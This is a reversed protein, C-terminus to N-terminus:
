QGGDRNIRRRHQASNNGIRGLAVAVQTQVIPSSDRCCDCLADAAAAATKGLQGLARATRWRVKESPSSLLEILAPLSKASAEEMFGLQDIAALQEQESGSQLKQILEDVNDQRAHVPAAGVVFGTGALMCAVVFIQNLRFFQM